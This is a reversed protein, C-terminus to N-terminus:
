PNSSILIFTSYKMLFLVDTKLYDRIEAMHFHLHSIHM